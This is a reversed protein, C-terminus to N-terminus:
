LQMPFPQAIMRWIKSIQAQHFFNLWSQFLMTTFQHCNESDKIGKEVFSVSKGWASFILDKYVSLFFSQPFACSFLSLSVSSPQWLFPLRTVISSCLPPLRSLQLNHAPIFAPATHMLPMSLIVEFVLLSSIILGAPSFCWYVLVGMHTHSLSLILLLSVLVCVENIYGMFVECVASSCM